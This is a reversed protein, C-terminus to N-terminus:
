RSEAGDPRALALAVAFEGGDARAPPPELEIERRPREKCERVHRLFSSAGREASDRRLTAMGGARGYVRGLMPAFSLRSPPNASLGFASTKFVLTGVPVPPEFGEGEAM